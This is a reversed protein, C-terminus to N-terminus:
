HIYMMGASLREGKILSQKDGVAHAATSVGAGVALHTEGALRLESYVELGVDLQLKGQKAAAKEGTSGRRLSTRSPGPTGCRTLAAPLQRKEDPVACM